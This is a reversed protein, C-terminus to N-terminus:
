DKEAKQRKLWRGRGGEARKERKKFNGNSEKGEEQTAVGERRGKGGHEKEKM